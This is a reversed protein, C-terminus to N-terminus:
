NLLFPVMLLVVQQLPPQFDRTYANIPGFKASDLFNLKSVCNGQGSCFRRTLSCNSSRSFKANYGCIGAVFNSVSGSIPFALVEDKIKVDTTLKNNAWREMEQKLYIRHGM